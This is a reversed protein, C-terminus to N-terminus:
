IASQQELQRMYEQYEHAKQVAQLFNNRDNQDLCQLFYFEYLPPNQQQLNNVIDRLFLVEDLNDLKSDYLERGSEEEQLNYDEDDDDDSLLELENEEDEIIAQEVTDEEAEEAKEAKKQRVIISKQCLFVLAKM